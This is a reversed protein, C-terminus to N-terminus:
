HISYFISPFVRSSAFLPYTANMIPFEGFYLNENRRINTYPYHNNLRLFVSGIMLQDICIDKFTFEELGEM